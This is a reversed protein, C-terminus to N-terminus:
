NLYRLLKKNIFFCKISYFILLKFVQNFLFLTSVDFYLFYFHKSVKNFLFLTSVVFFNFYFLKSM